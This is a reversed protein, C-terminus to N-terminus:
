WVTTCHTGQGYVNGDRRALGVDFIFDDASGQKDSGHGMIASKVGTVLIGLAAFMVCQLRAEAGGRAM